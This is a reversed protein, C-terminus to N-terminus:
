LPNSFDLPFYIRLVGSYFGSQRKSLRWAGFRCVHLKERQSIERQENKERKMKRQADKTSTMTEKNGYVLITQDRNPENAHRTKGNRGSTRRFMSRDAKTNRRSILM